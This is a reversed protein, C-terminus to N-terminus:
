NNNVAVPVFNAVFARSYVTGPTAGALVTTYATTTFTTNFVAQFEVDMISGIPALISMLVAGLVISAHWSGAPSDVSPKYDVYAPLDLTQSTDTITEPLDTFCNNGPDTTVPTIVITVPTGNTVVPAWIQMRKMRIASFPSNGLVATTAVIFSNLIGSIALNAAINAAAGYRRKFFFMPNPIFEKPFMKHDKPHELRPSRVNEEHGVHLKRGKNGRFKKPSGKKAFTKQKFQKKKNPILALVTNESKVASDTTVKPFNQM